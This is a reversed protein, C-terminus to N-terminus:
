TRARPAQSTKQSCHSNGIRRVVPMREMLYLLEKLYDEVLLPLEGLDRMRSKGEALM